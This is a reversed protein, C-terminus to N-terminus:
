RSKYDVQFSKLFFLSLPILQWYSGTLNASLFCLTSQLALWCIWGFFPHNLSRWKILSWGVVYFWTVRVVQIRWECAEESLWFSWYFCELNFLSSVENIWYYNLLYNVTYIFDYILLEITVSMHNWRKQNFGTYRIIPPLIFHGFIM